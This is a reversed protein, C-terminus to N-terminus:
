LKLHGDKIYGAITQRSVKEGLREAKLALNNPNPTQGEDRIAQLAKKAAALKIPDPGRRNPTVRKGQEPPLDSQIPEVINVGPKLAGDAYAQGIAAIAGASGDNMVIYAEDSAPKGKKRRTM